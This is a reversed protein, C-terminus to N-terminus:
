RLLSYITVSGLILFGIKYFNQRKKLKKYESDAINFKKYAIDIEEKHHKIVSDRIKIQSKMSNIMSIKTDVLDNCLELLDQSRKYKITTIAIQKLEIKNYCVLTDKNITLALTQAYSVTLNIFILM